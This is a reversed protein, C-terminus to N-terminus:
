YYDKMPNIKHVKELHTKMDSRSCPKKNCHNCAYMNKNGTKINTVNVSDILYFDNYKRIMEKALYNKEFTFDKKNKVTLLDWKNKGMNGIFPNKNGKGTPSFAWGKARKDASYSSFKTLYVMAKHPVIYADFDFPNVKDHFVICVFYDIDKNEIQSKTIRFYRCKGRGKYRTSKVEIKCNNDTNLIDFVHGEPMRVSTNKMNSLMARVVHEATRGRYAYDTDVM